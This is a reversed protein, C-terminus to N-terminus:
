ESNNENLPFKLLGSVDLWGPRLINRLVQHQERRMFWIEMERTQETEGEDGNSERIGCFVVM